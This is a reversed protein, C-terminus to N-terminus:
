AFLLVSIGASSVRTKGGLLVPGESRTKMVFSEVANSSSYDLAVRVINIKDTDLDNLNGFSMECVKCWPAFFYVLTPKDSTEFVSHVEGDLGILSAQQITVSGDTPLMDKTQWASIGWFLLLVIASDRLWKAVGSKYWPNSESM